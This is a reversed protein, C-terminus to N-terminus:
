RLRPLHSWLRNFEDQFEGVLVEDETAIINEYNNRTASRTWNFSGSLLKRNDFVAFKHHMREESSDIAVEIGNDRLERIDSGADYVKEDDTILRIRIGNAFALQISKKIRNDTITYVCIDATEHTESFARIVCDLCEPGPSFHAQTPGIARPARQQDVVKVVAELWDMADRANQRRIEERAIDFARNRVYRLTDEDDSFRILVQQLANRESRSLRHDDFTKRLIDDLGDLDM